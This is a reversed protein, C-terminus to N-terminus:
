VTQAHFRKFSARGRGSFFTFHNLPESALAVAVADRDDESASLNEATQGRADERRRFVAVDSLCKDSRMM